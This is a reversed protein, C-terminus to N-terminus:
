DILLVPSIVDGIHLFYYGKNISSLNLRFGNYTKEFIFGGKIEEGQINTIRIPSEIGLDALNLHIIGKSPNPFIINQAEIEKINSETHDNLINVVEMCNRVDYFDVTIFNPFKDQESACDYVRNIFYPNSNVEEVQENYLELNGLVLLINTIFHNLIFLSNQVEGRNLNCSFDDISENSFHTEVAHEWLFHFWSPPNQVENDSFLVIRKNLDIM